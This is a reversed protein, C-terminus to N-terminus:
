LQPSQLQLLEEAIQRWVFLQAEPYSLPHNGTFATKLTVLIRQRFTSLYPRQVSLAPMNELILQDRPYFEEPSFALMLLAAYKQLLEYRAASSFYDVQTSVALLCGAVRGSHLIPLALASVTHEPLYSALRPEQQVDAVIQPLGSIVARGALSEAGLFSSRLEVQEPWPSTGLGVCERLYRIRQDNASPMCQVVSLSLSTAQLDFSSLAESLVATCISWFRAEDPASAQIDLIRASFALSLGEEQSSVASDEGIEDFEEALLARLLIQQYPFAQLLLRLEQPSPTAERKIWHQLTVETVGLIKALREKEGLDRTLAALLDRWTQYNDM